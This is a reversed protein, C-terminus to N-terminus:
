LEPGIQLHIRWHYQDDTLPRAVDAKIPGIPTNIRLGGGMSIQVRDNSRHFANGADSFIALSLPGYIKQELEISGIALYGGGIARVQGHKDLNGPLARYGFGRISQDGGAYFRQSLPIRNIDDPVTMGLETRFIFKTDPTFKRLYKYEIKPQFFSTDSLLTGIAAKLNFAFRHGINPSFLDDSVIKIFQVSPLLLNEQRELSTDYQQFQEQRYSLTLVRQWNGLQRNQSIGIEQVRSYTDLYNENHLAGKLRYNDTIPFKGPILYGVNLENSHNKEGARFNMMFRHGWENVYRREWGLTGRIGTDTGYGLGITYKNPKLPDLSVDLPVQLNTPNPNPEVQASKFYDSQQLAQQFSLVKEPSYPEHEYFKAFRKLFRENFNSGSFHIHGIEYAKLTDLELHIDAQNKDLDVLIEHTSFYADLYGEHIAAALLENKGYTYTEQNLVENPKLPFQKSSKIIEKNKSGDGTMKINIKSLTIPKGTLIHYHVYWHHHGASSFQAFLKAHYYGFPHLAAQIESKGRETLLKIQATDIKESSQIKNLSLNKRINEEIKKDVGSISLIVSHNEQTKQAFSIPSFFLNGLLLTVLSYTYNNQTKLALCGRTMTMPFFKLM